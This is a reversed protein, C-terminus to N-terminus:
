VFGKFAAGKPTTNIVLHKGTSPQDFQLEVSCLAINGDPTKIGDSNYKADGLIGHGAHKLQVRIQHHRGTYLKVLVLATKGNTKLVLYSLQAKKADKFSADVVRSVNTKPDKYLFDELKIELDPQIGNEAEEDWEVVAMYKKDTLGGTLQKTLKAASEKSRAFLIIGEVPRDLRNIPAIFPIAIGNRKEYSLLASVMDQSFGRDSQSLVGAPKHCVYVDKDQYLILSSIDIM